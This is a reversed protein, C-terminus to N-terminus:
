GPSKEHEPSTEKLKKEILSLNNKLRQDEPSFALAAKAHALSREYMGLQFCAISCLDDPTYDWAYAANVYVPSRERIKLAEETMCFVTPWDGLRYAMRAFEVYADRMWPAEGIARYYWRYAESVQSLSFFSAATWRMSACREERWVATPLSLYRLMTNICDQWRGRYMYERGLYYTMRDDSPEEKVAMELLPLYSSRSKNPDPHHNLVMGPIFVVQQPETGVYGLCEHVPHIWRYGHRAHCKFYRFQVAPTGDPKLSWNYLYKGMTTGKQWAKEICRRWGKEFIEDLDTCVCIDVDEPVHNLSRNRAEDFRWPNIGESYVVAGRSILKEATKDTSGTDTVVVLDAESMSDMWRDVFQEENKCIAYVCIKYQRM